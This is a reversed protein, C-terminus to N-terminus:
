HVGGGAGGSKKGETQFTCIQFCRLFECFTLVCLRMRKKKKGAEKNKIEDILNLKMPMLDICNYTHGFVCVCVCELYLM